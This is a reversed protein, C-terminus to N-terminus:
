RNVLIIFHSDYHIVHVGVIQLNSNKLIHCATTQYMVLTECSYAAEMKLTDEVRRDLVHLSCIEGFNEYHEVVICPM